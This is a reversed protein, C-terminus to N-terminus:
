KGEKSTRVVQAGKFIMSPGLDRAVLDIAEQQQGDKDTWQRATWRGEAVIRQGKELYEAVNNALNGWCVVSYFAVEGDKWQGTKDDKVRESVAVRLNAVAKGGETFRLEPDHTLNGSVSGAGRDNDQKAPKQAPRQAAQQAAAGTPM